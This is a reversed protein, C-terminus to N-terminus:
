KVIGDRKSAAPPHERCTTEGVRQGEEKKRVARVRGLVCMCRYLSAFERIRTTGTEEKDIRVDRQRDPCM